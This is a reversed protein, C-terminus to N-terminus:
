PLLQASGFQRSNCYPADDGNSCGCGTSAGCKKFWSIESVQSDGVGDNWAIDFGITAGFAAAGFTAPDIRVEVTYSRGDALASTRANMNPTAVQTTVRFGQVRGAHDIVIQTADPGYGNNLDSYSGNADIYIAISDNEYLEPGGNDGLPLVGVVRAAIYISSGDHVLAFDGSPFTGADTFSRIHAGTTRSDLHTFCTSWDSLDGDVVPAATVRSVILQGPGALNCAADAAFGGEL